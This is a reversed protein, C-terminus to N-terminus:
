KEGPVKSVQWPLGDPRPNVLAAVAASDSRVIGIEVDSKRMWGGVTLFECKSMPVRLGTARLRGIRGVTIQTYRHCAFDSAVM